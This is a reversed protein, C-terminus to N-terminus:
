LVCGIWKFDSFNGLHFLSAEDNYIDTNTYPIAEQGGSSWGLIERVSFNGKNIHSICPIESGIIWAGSIQQTTSM